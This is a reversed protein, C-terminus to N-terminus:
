LCNLLQSLLQQVSACLGLREKAVQVLQNGQPFSLLALAKILLLAEINSREVNHGCYRAINSMLRTLREYQVQSLACAQIVQPFAQLLELSHLARATRESASVFGMDNRKASVFAAQNPMASVFDSTTVPLVYNILGQVANLGQASELSLVVYKNSSSIASFLENNLDSLQVQELLVMETSSNDESNTNILMAYQEASIPAGQHLSALSVEAVGKGFRVMSYASSLEKAYSGILLLPLKLDGASCWLAAMISSLEVDMKDSVFANGDVGVSNLNAKVLRFEDRWSSTLQTNVGAMNGMGGFSGMNGMANGMAAMPNMNAGMAANAQMGMMNPAAMNLGQNIALGMQQMPMAQANNVWPNAGMPMGLTAAIQSRLTTIQQQIATFESVAQKKDQALKNEAATLEQLQERAAEVQPTLENLQARQEELVREQAERQMAEQDNLEDNLKQADNLEKAYQQENDKEDQMALELSSLEDKIAELEDSLEILHSRYGESDYHLQESQEKVSKILEEQSQIEKLTHEADINAQEKIRQQESINSQTEVLERSLKDQKDHLEHLTNNLPELEKLCKEVEKTLAFYQEKDESPNDNADAQELKILELEEQAEQQQTKLSSLEINLSDQDKNLRECERELKKLEDRKSTLEHEAKHYDERLKNLKEDRQSQNTKSDALNKKLEKRLSSLESLKENSSAIDDKLQKLKNEHESLRNNELELESKRQAELKAIQQKLTKLGDGFLPHDGDDNEDDHQVGFKSASTATSSSSPEDSSSAMADAEEVFRLENNQYKSSLENLKASFDKFLINDQHDKVAGEVLNAVNVLLNCEQALKTLEARKQSKLEAPSKPESDQADADAKANTDAAAKTAVAGDAHGNQASAAKSNAEVKDKADNSADPAQPAAQEENKDEADKPGGFFSAVVAKAAAVTKTIVNGSANNDESNEVNSNDSNSEDAISNNSRVEEAILDDSGSEDAILNDSSSEEEILDESSVKLSNKLGALGNYLVKNPKLYTAPYVGLKDLATKIYENLNILPTPYNAEDFYRDLAGEYDKLCKHFVSEDFDQVKAELFAEELCASFGDFNTYSLGEADDYGIASLRQCIGCQTKVLLGCHEAVAMVKEDPLNHSLALSVVSKIVYSTLALDVLDPNILEFSFSDHYISRLTAVVCRKVHEIDESSTISLDQCISQTAQEELNCLLEITLDLDGRLDTVISRKQAVLADIGKTIYFKKADELPATFYDDKPNFVGILPLGIPDFDKIATIVEQRLSESALIADKNSGYKDKILEQAVHCFNWLLFPYSNCCEEKKPDLIEKDKLAAASLTRYLDSNSDTLEKYFSGDFMQEFSQPREQLINVLTNKALSISKDLNAIDEKRLVRERVISYLQELKEEM